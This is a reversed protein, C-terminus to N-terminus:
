LQCPFLLLSSPLFFKLGCVGVCACVSTCVFESGKEGKRKLKREEWNWEERGAGGDREMDRGKM